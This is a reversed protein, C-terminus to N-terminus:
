HELFIVWVEQQPSLTWRTMVTNKGKDGAQLLGAQIVVEDLQKAQEQLQIQLPKNHSLDLPISKSELGVATIKLLQNGVEHTLFSFNGLTDTTGGDYTGVIFINAYQVTNKNSDTVKGNIRIQASVQISCFLIISLIYKM